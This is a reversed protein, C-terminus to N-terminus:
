DRGVFLWYIFGGAVVVFGLATLMAFIDSPRNPNLLNAGFLIDHTEKAKQAPPLSDLYRRVEDNELIDTPTAAKFQRLFATVIGSVVLLFAALGALAVLLGIGLQYRVKIDKTMLALADMDAQVPTEALNGFDYITKSSSGTNGIRSAAFDTGNFQPVFGRVEIGMRPFIITEFASTANLFSQLAKPRDFSQLANAAALSSRLFDLGGPAAAVAQYLQVDRSISSGVYALYALKERTSLYIQAMTYLGKAKAVDDYTENAWDSIQIVQELDPAPAAPSDGMHGNGGLTGAAYLARNNDNPRPVVTHKGYQKDSYNDGLQNKWGLSAGFKASAM